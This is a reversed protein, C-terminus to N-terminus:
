PGFTGNGSMRSASETKDTRTYAQKAQRSQRLNMEAVIERVFQLRQECSCADSEFVAIDEDDRWFDDGLGFAGYDAPSLGARRELRLGMASRCFFSGRSTVPVIIDMFSGDEYTRSM